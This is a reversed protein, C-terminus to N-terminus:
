NSRAQYSFIADLHPQLLTIESASFEKAIEARTTGELRLRLLTAGLSEVNVDELDDRLSEFDLRRSEEVEKDFDARVEYSSDADFITKAYKISIKSIEDVAAFASKLLLVEESMIVGARERVDLQIDREMLALDREFTKIRREPLTFADFLLEYHNLLAELDLLVTFSDKSPEGTLAFIQNYGVRPETSIDNSAVLSLLSKLERDMKKVDDLTVVLLNTKLIDKLNKCNSTAQLNACLFSLIFVRFFM